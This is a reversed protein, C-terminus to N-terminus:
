AQPPRYAQVNFSRVSNVVQELNPFEQAAVAKMAAVGEAVQEDTLRWSGSYIRKEHRAIFAAPTSTEAYEVSLRDGVPQWGEDQPFTNFRDRPVGVAKEEQQPVVTRWAKHLVDFPHDDPGANWCSLLLGGTQLVRAVERLADKWGPVLHFIHTATVRDFTHT